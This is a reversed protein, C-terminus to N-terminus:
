EINQVQERFQEIRAKLSLGARTLELDNAKACLTNAERNLEQALFDLQRGVARGEAAALLQRAAELHSGLRDLEERIDGKAALLALEQLLRDEPLAPEAEILRAIQEKLRAKLAEPRLAGLRAAEDVACAMDDLQGAIVRALRQGESERAAKLRDLTGELSDLVAAERAARAEDSDEEEVPEVVGKLGLVSDLSPAPQGLGAAIGQLEALLDSLATRNIRLRLAATDRQLSLSITVHGRQFRRVARERAALELADMGAPLRCRVDLTRGNVSKVEWTWRERGHEGLVRAFGTM